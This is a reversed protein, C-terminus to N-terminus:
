GSTNPGAGTEADDSVDDFSAGYSCYLAAGSLAIGYALGQQRWDGNALRSTVCPNSWYTYRSGGGCGALGAAVLVAAAARVGGARLRM